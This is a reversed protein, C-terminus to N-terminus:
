PSGIRKFCTNMLRILFEMSAMVPRPRIVSFTNVWSLRSIIATLSLPQPMEASSWFVMKRGKTVWLSFPVPSPSEMARRIMSACLPVMWRRDAVPFPVSIWTCRGNNGVDWIQIYNDWVPKILPLRSELVEGKWLARIQVNREKNEWIEENWDYCCIRFNDIAHATVKELCLFSCRGRVRPELFLAGAHAM